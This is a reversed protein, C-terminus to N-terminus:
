VAVNWHEMEEMDVSVDKGTRCKDEGRGTGQDQQSSFYGQVTSSVPHGVGGDTPQLVTPLYRHIM